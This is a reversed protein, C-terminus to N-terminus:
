KSQFRYNLDDIGMEIRHLRDDITDIIKITNSDITRNADFAYEAIVGLRTYIFVFM